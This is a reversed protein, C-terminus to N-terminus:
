QLKRRYASPTMAYQSKFARNFYSTNQFGVDLAIQTISHDTEQLALAANALRYQVLYEICTSGIAAKFVNMFHVQSFGCLQALQAISIPEAYHEQIYALALKLKEEYIRSTRRSPELSAVSSHQWICRILQFTQEKFLLERYACEPDQCAWMQEFCELIQGYCPDEQRIVPSIRLQGNRIPQIYRRTCEDQNELGALRLHFVMSATVAQHEGIQHASHLTDPSILLIDGEKLEYRVQDIDYYLVGSLVKTFEMEEHWHVLMNQFHLPIHSQYFGVPFGDTGHRANEELYSQLVSKVCVGEKMSYHLFDVLYQM